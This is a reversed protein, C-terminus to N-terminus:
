WTMVGRGGDSTVSGFADRCLLIQKPSTSVFLSANYDGYRRVVELGALRCVALLEEPFFCRMSVQNSHAVTGDRRYDLHFRVIQTAADYSPTSWVEVCRGVADQFSKIHRSAGSPCSLEAVDRNSVELILTGDSALARRASTLFAVVSDLDHLHGMSNHASFILAFRQATRIDRCDQEIWDVAVQCDHARRAARRLMSPMVDLGTVNVGAQALPVTIRGTGCGVELVPGQARRAQELFFPIEHDRTAFELDYFEADDYVAMDILHKM